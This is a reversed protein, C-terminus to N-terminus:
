REAAEPDEERTPILGLQRARVLSVSRVRMKSNFDFPPYPNGLRLAGRLHPRRRQRLEKPTREHRTIKKQLKKSKSNVQRHPTTSQVRM